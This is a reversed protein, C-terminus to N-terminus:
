NTVTTKWQEIVRAQENAAKLADFEILNVESRKIMGEKPAIAPNLAM